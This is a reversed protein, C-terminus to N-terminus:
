AQEDVPDRRVDPRDALLRDDLLAEPRQSWRQRFPLLRGAQKVAEASGGGRIAAALAAHGRLDLSRDVRAAVLRLAARRARRGRWGLLLLFTRPSLSSRM